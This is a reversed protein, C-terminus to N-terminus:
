KISSIPGGPVEGLPPVSVNKKSKIVTSTSLRARALGYVKEGANKPILRVEVWTEWTEDPRLRKPLPRDPQLVHVQPTTDIWIHTVEIDRDLSLNTLNIFYCERGSEIFHAKHVLLRVRRRGSFASLLFEAFAKLNERLFFSLVGIGALLVPWGKLLLKVAESAM